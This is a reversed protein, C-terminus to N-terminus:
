RKGTWSKSLLCEGQMQPNILIDIPWLLLHHHWIYCNGSSLCVVFSNKSNRTGKKKQKRIVDDVTKCICLYQQDCVTRASLDTNFYLNDDWSYSCGPQENKESIEIGDDYYTRYPNFKVVMEGEQIKLGLKKAASICEAKNRITKTFVDPCLELEISYYSITGNADVQHSSSCDADDTEPACWRDDWYENNTIECVGNNAYKCSNDMRRRLFKKSHVVTSLANSQTSMWVIGLLRIFTIINQLKLYTRTTTM